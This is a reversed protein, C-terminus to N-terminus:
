LVTKKHMMEAYRANVLTCGRNGPERLFGRKMPDGGSKETCCYCWRNPTPYWERDMEECIEDCLQIAMELPIPNIVNKDMM